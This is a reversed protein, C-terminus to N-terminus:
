QLSARIKEALEPSRACARDQALCKRLPLDCGCTCKEASIRRDYELRASASLGDGALLAARRAVPDPPPNPRSTSDSEPPHPKAANAAPVTARSGSEGARRDRFLPSRARFWWLGAGFLAAYVLILVVASGPRRPRLVPAPPQPVIRIPGPREAM